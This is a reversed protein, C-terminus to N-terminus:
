SNDSSLFPSLLAAMNLSSRPGLLHTIYFTYRVNNFFLGVFAGTTYRKERM